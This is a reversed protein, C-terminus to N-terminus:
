LIYSRIIKKSTLDLIANHLESAEGDGLCSVRPIQGKSDFVINASPAMRELRNRLLNTRREVQANDFKDRHTVVPLIACGQAFQKSIIDIWFLVNEDIDRNIAEEQRSEYEELSDDDDSYWEYEYDSFDEEDSSYVDQDYSFPPNNKASM